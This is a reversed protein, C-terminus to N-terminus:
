TLRPASKYFSVLQLFHNDNIYTVIIDELTEINEQSCSVSSEYSATRPPTLPKAMSITKEHDQKSKLQLDSVKEKLDSSNKRSKSPKKYKKKGEVEQGRNIESEHKIAETQAHQNLYLFKNTSSPTPLPMDLLSATASNITESRLQEMYSAETLVKKMSPGESEQLTCRRVSEVPVCGNGIEYSADASANPSAEGNLADILVRTESKVPCTEVAHRVKGVYQELISKVSFFIEETSFKMQFRAIKKSVDNYWKIGICPVRTIVAIGSQQTSNDAYIPPIILKSLRTINLMEFLIAGRVVRLMVEEHGAVSCKEFQIELDRHPYHLWQIDNISHKQSSGCVDEKPTAYSYRELPFSLSTFGNKEKM